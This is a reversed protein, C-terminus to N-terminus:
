MINYESHPMMISLSLLAIYSFGSLWSSICGNLSFLIIILFQLRVSASRRGILCAILGILLSILILAGGVAMMAVMGWVMTSYNTDKTTLYDKLKQRDAESM